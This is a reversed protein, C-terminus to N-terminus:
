YDRGLALTRQVGPMPQISDPRMMENDEHDVIHCHWVYDFHGGPQGPIADDPTFVYHLTSADGGTGGIAMDTPAWRVVFRTVIGPPAMVTDKWGAENPRPPDVSGQLYPTVDPNGGYKGASALSPAYSLPPGYSPMYEGASYPKGDEPSIGGGPFATEYAHRYSETDFVQRSLLQFQALHTHMPHADMTMNVIEWVETTGEKPMESLFNGLGDSVFGAQDPSTMMNNPNTADPQSGDYRANNVLIEEPGGSYNVGNVTIPAERAIENLTLERTLDPVVGPALAGVTPDVLRVIAAAGSRIAAGMAPNFSTDNAAAGGVVRFQMVRGTTAPDAPRQDGATGNYPGDPGTNSLIMTTGPPLGSFDVIFEAREGPMVILPDVLVPSDLYGQDTGIQWIPPTASNGSFTLEYTRANSGDILLFRYRQAKVELYPWVKGNVAITDHVNPAEGFFEPVWSEHEPNLSPSVPDEPGAPFYLQGNTDFMRDQVVLPILTDDAPNPGLAGDRLGTANLGAPLHLTPDVLLYGGALGAYVNLRTAGMTHDHFWLPAAEQVNPYRYIVYNGNTNGDMSYFAAGHQGTSTFWSDPGGDTAAADEGGHLHVAAPIAGSYHDPNGIFPPTLSPNAVYRPVGSPNAWHLSQDTSNKYALVHTTDTSGLDNVFKFQTPVGRTAVIVPGTYTDRALDLNTEAKVYGWVWTGTYPGNAPTFTSPLMKAQFEKMDLEIQSTGAIITQITGNAAGTVDLIPLPDVFQPISGAVVPVQAETSSASATSTSTSTASPTSTGTSTSTSTPASASSPTSNACASLTLSALLAAIGPAPFSARM